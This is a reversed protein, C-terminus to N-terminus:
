IHILSLSLVRTKELANRLQRLMNFYVSFYNLIGAHTIILQVCIININGTTIEDREGCM